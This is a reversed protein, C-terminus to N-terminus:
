SVVNEMALTYGSFVIFEVEFVMWDYSLRESSSGSEREGFDCLIYVLWVWCKELSHDM